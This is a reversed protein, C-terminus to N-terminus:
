YFLNVIFKSFNGDSPFNLGSYVRALDCKLAIREFLKKKNPYKKTLHKSLYYAQYAHGSPFSPLYNLSQLNCRGICNLKRDLQFPRIRNFFMKLLYIELYTHDLTNILYSLDEDVYPLFAKAITNDIKRCFYAIENNGFFTNNHRRTIYHKVKELEDYNNPYIEITPYFSYYRETTQIYNIILYIILLYLLIYM